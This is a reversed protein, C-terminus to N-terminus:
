LRKLRRRQHGLVRSRGQIFSRGPVVTITNQVESIVGLGNVETLAALGDHIDGVFDVGLDYAAQTLFGASVVSETWGGLYVRGRFSRGALGTRLTIVAAAAFDYEDGVSSSPAPVIGAAFEPLFDERLDRVFVEDLTVSSALQADFTGATFADRITSGILQAGSLDVAFGSTVEIGLVNQWSRELVSSSWVLRARIAGPIAM